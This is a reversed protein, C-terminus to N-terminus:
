HRPGSQDNSLCFNILDDVLEVSRAGATESLQSSNTKQCPSTATPSRAALGNLLAKWPGTRRDQEDVKQKTQGANEALLRCGMGIKGKIEQKLAGHAVAEALPLWGGRRSQEEVSEVADIAGWEMVSQAVGTEEDSVAVATAGDM